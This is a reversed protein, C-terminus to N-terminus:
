QCLFSFLDDFCPIHSHDYIHFFLYPQWIYFIQSSLLFKMPMQLFVIYKFKFCPIRLPDYIDPLLYPECIFYNLSDSLVEHANTNQISVCTYLIEFTILM